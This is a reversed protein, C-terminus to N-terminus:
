ARQGGLSHLHTLAFRVLAIAGQEDGHAASSTSTTEV